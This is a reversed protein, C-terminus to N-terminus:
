EARSKSVTFLFSRQKTLTGHSIMQFVPGWVCSRYHTGYLAFRTIGAIHLFWIILIKTQSMLLSFVAALVPVCINNCQKETPAWASWGKALSSLLCVLVLKTCVCFQLPRMPLCVAASLQRVFHCWCDLFLHLRWNVCCWPVEVTNAEVHWTKGDQFSTWDTFKKKNKQRSEWQFITKRIYQCLCFPAITCHNRRPHLRHHSPATLRQSVLLKVYLASYTM